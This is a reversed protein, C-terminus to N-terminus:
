GSRMSWILAGLVKKEEAMLRRVLELAAKIQASRWRGRM